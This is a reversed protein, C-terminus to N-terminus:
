RTFRWLLIPPVVILVLLRLLRWDLIEPHAFLWAAVWLVSIGIVIGRNVRPRARGRVKTRVFEDARAGIVNIDGKSQEPPLYGPSPRDSMQAGVADAAVGHQALVQAAIGKGERIIGLLLHELGVYNHHRDRAETMALELVKKARSTYPLDDRHGAAPLGPRIIHEIAARVANPRAGVRELLQASTGQAPATYGLLMHETGVYEHRLRTAEARATALVSRVDETFNYGPM